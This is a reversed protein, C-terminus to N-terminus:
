AFPRRLVPSFRHERSGFSQQQPWAPWLICLFQMRRNGIFADNAVERARWTGVGGVIGHV